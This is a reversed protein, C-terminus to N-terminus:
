AQIIGADEISWLSNPNTWLNNPKTKEFKLLEKNAVIDNPAFINSYYEGNQLVKYRRMKGVWKKPVHTFFDTNVYEEGGILAIVESPQPRWDTNAKIYKALKGMAIIHEPNDTKFEYTIGYWINVDGDTKYREERQLDSQWTIHGITELDNSYSKKGLVSLTFHRYDSSRNFQGEHTKIATKM